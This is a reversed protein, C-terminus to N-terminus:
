NINKLVENVDNATIIINKKKGWKNYLYTTIEAIEINKLKKNNPMLQNNYLKNNIIIKEYIGNKIILITKDIFKPLKNKNNLSPILNKLGTADKQHCNSCYIFYLKRGNELYKIQKLPDKKIKINKKINIKYILFFFIIIYIFFYNKKLM